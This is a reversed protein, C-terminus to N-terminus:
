PCGAGTALRLFAHKRELQQPWPEDQVPYSRGGAVRVHRASYTPKWVDRVQYGRGGALQVRWPTGRLPPMRGSASGAASM